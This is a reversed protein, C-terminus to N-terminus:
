PPEGNQKYVGYFICHMQHTDERPRLLLFEKGVLPAALIYLTTLFSSLIKHNGALKAPAIVETLIRGLHKRSLFFSLCKPISRNCTLNMKAAM